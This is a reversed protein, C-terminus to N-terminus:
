RGRRISVTATLWLAVAVGGVVLVILGRNERIFRVVPHASLRSGPEADTQLQSAPNNLANSRAAAAQNGDASEPQRAAEPQASPQGSLVSKKIDALSSPLQVSPTAEERRGTPEAARRGDAPAAGDTSREYLQPKDQLQLLLDVAKGAGNGTVTVPAPASKSQAREMTGSGTSGVNPAIDDSQAPAAHAVWSVFAITAVSITRLALRNM